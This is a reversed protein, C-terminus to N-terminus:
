GASRVCACRTDPPRALRGTPDAIPSGASDHFSLFGRIVDHDEVVVGDDVRQALAQQQEAPLKASREAVSFQHVAHRQLVTAQRQVQHGARQAAGVDSGLDGALRQAPDIAVQQRGQQQEVVAAGQHQHAVVALMGLHQYRLAVASALPHRQGLQFRQVAARRDEGLAAVARVPPDAVVGAGQGFVPEEARELPEPTGVGLDGGRRQHGVDQRDGRCQEGHLDVVAHHGVRGEVGQPDEGAAHGQRDDEVTDQPDHAAVQEVHEALAEVQLERGQQEGAHQAGPDGGLRRRHAGETGLHPLELRHALEKGRGARRQDAVQREHRDEQQDDGHDAAMHDPHRQHGAHQHDQRPQQGLAQEAVQRPLVQAFPRHLVAHQQFGELVQLRDLRGAGFAAAQVLPFGQGAFQGTRRHLGM